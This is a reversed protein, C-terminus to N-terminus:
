YLLYIMVIFALSLCVSSLMNLRMTHKFDVLDANSRQRIFWNGFYLLIPISALAFPILLFAIGATIFTFGMMGFALGFAVASFIFTGNIGLLLSLTQDGRESDEGHQYIQTMPYSGLLFLSATLALLINTISWDFSNLLAIQNSYVVFAGQFFCVVVTSLVPYKKLRIKDWSYAKSVLLYVTVLLAFHVSLFFSLAIAKLDFLVALLFLERNVKPPQELGGISGEDRDFYSNYGNSAPYVFLHWIVFLLGAEFLSFEAGKLSVLSFWFIPM